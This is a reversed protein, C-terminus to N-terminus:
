ARKYTLKLQIQYKACNSGVESPYASLTPVISKVRGERIVPFNHAANQTLIWEVVDSYFGMNALNTQIDAGFSEKSAFIFNITQIDDPIDEGLVNEHYSITSPSAYIAYETPDGSLFDIRFRNANSIAPCTRFWERIQQTSNLEPM